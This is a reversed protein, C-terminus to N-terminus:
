IPAVSRPLLKGPSRQVLEDVIMRWESNGKARERVEVASKYSNLASKM